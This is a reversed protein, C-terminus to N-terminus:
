RHAICQRGFAKRCLLVYAHVDYEVLTGSEDVLTVRLEDQWPNYDSDDTLMELRYKRHHSCVGGSRFFDARKTYQLLFGHRDSSNCRHFNRM